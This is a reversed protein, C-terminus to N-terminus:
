RPSEEHTSTAAYQSQDICSPQAVRRDAERREMACAFFNAAVGPVIASLPTMTKVRSDSQIIKTLVEDPPASM